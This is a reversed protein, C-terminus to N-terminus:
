LCASPVPMHFLLSYFVFWITSDVQMLFFGLCGLYVDVDLERDEEIRIEEM